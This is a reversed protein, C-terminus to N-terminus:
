KAREVVLATVPVRRKELRLGASSELARDLAGEEKGWEITLDFVGSLGTADVIPVDILRSLSNAIRAMSAREAVFRGNTANTRPGERPAVEKLKLGGPAITLAFGDAERQETRVAIQFKEALQKQLRNALEAHPTGPEAKITMDFRDSADAGYVNSEDVGYAAAVATKLTVNRLELVGNRSTWGSDASQVLLLFLLLM